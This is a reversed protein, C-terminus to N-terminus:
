ESDCWILNHALGEDMSAYPQEAREAIASVARDRIHPTSDSRIHAGQPRRHRAPSRVARDSRSKRHHASRRMSKAKEKAALMKSALARSHACDEDSERIDMKMQSARGHATWPENCPHIAIFQRMPTTPAAQGTVYPALQTNNYQPEAEFASEIFRGVDDEASINPHSDFFAERFQSRVHETHRM